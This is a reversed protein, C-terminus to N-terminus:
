GGALAPLHSACRKVMDPIAHQPFPAEQYQFPYRQTSPLLVSPFHPQVQSPGSQPLCNASCVSQM